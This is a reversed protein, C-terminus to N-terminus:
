IQKKMSKMLETRFNQANADLGVYLTVSICVIFIISLFQKFNKFIDRFLKISLIKFLNM